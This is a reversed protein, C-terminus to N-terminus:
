RKGLWLYYFIEFCCHSFCHMKLNWTSNQHIFSCPINIFKLKWWLNGDWDFWVSNLNQEFYIKNPTHPEWKTSKNPLWLSHNHFSYNRQLLLCVIKFQFNQKGIYNKHDRSLTTTFLPKWMPISTFINMISKDRCSWISGCVVCSSSSLPEVSWFLVSFSSSVSFYTFEISFYFKVIETLNWIINVFFANSDPYFLNGQNSHRAQLWIKELLYNKKSRSLLWPSKSM